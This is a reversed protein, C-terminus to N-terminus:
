LARQRPDKCVRYGVTAYKRKRTQSPHSLNGSEERESMSGKGNPAYNVFTCPGSGDRHEVAVVVFGYSALEGCLSSYMTRTGGLGHSFILLPFCPQEPGDPPPSGTSNKVQATKVQGESVNAPPWHRALAANRFAPLKTFGATAGFFPIALGGISAFNGYGHATKM